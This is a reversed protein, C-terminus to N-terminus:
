RWWLDFNCVKQDLVSDWNEYRALISYDLLLVEADKFDNCHYYHMHLYWKADKSSKNKYDAETEPKGKFGVM